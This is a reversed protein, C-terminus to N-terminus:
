GPRWAGYSQQPLMQPPPSPPSRHIVRAYVDKWNTGLFKLRESNLEPSRSPCLLVNENELFESTFRARHLSANDQQIPERQPELIPLLQCFKMEIYYIQLTAKCSCCNAVIQTPFPERRRSLSDDNNNSLRGNHHRDVRQPGGHRQLLFGCEDSARVGTQVGTNEVDKIKMICFSFLWDLHSFTHYSKDTCKDMNDWTPLMSFSGNGMHVLFTIGELVKRLCKWISTHKQKVQVTYVNVCVCVDTPGLLLNLVVRAIFVVFQESLLNLFGTLHLEVVSKWHFASRPQRLSWKSRPFTGIYLALRVTIDCQKILLRRESSCNSYLSTSLQSPEKRWM